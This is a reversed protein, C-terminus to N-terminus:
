QPFLGSVGAAIKGLAQSSCYHIVIFLFLALTPFPLKSTQLSSEILIEHAAILYNSLCCHLSCIAM